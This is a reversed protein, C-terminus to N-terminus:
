EPVDGLVTFHWPKVADQKVAAMVHKVTSFDELAYHSLDHGFGSQKVGGHPMESTLPLHDNLWVEGFQLQRSMELGRDLQTTWVSSALGYDVDNAMALAEQDSTFPLVVLVPGFIEEQVCPWHQEVHSLVTPEVYFGAPQPGAQGGTVVQAGMTRAQEIYGLVKQRQAASIVPGLDTRMDEPNGVRASEFLAKVGEVFRDYHRHHVYARTAATCDQGSNVLAAVAIGQIAADLDADEFVLAPAKGGLELHLRKVRAAAAAMITRGTQTDGTLTIMGVRPDRVLADGVVRGPGAVINLVGDPIGAEQALPGLMLATLPTLSAPKLVVTNGAALAPAIKWLAMMLPYNWPAIAGVVGLPERRIWSTHLGNYEAAAQGELVRGAGAFYRLNDLGFPIDSYQVLKVPKGSQVSEWHVFDAQKSEILDALKFLCAAREGYALRSWRGDHFADWATQIAQNVSREGAVALSAVVEQTAPNIIEGTEAQDGEIWKGNVWSTWQM